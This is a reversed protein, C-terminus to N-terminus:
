FRGLTKPPYGPDTETKVLGTETLRSGEVAYRHLVGGRVGADSAFCVGCPADCVVGWIMFGTDNSRLLTTAHGTSLDLQAITDAADPTPKDPLYGWTQVLLESDTAYDIYPGAPGAGLIEASFSKEIKPVDTVDVLVVGSGSLDSPGYQNQNGTCSIALETSSPSVALGACDQFGTLVLIDTVQDRDTDITVLRSPADVAFTASLVELLVFARHGVRVVRAPRPLDSTAGGLASVLDITGTIAPTKPNVVAVDNGADFPERGPTANTGYRLVYAKEASIAVYDWPNAYFNGPAVSLERRAATNDHVDVWVVRSAGAARDLLVIESGDVRQTPPVVDGSLPATLGVSSTASSAISTSLVQGDDDVLSVNTSSYDVPQEVVVIGRGCAVSGDVSTTADPVNAGVPKKPTPVDCAFTALTALIPWARRPSITKTMEM